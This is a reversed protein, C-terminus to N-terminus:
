LREAKSSVARGYRWAGRAFLAQLGVFVVLLLLSWKQGASEIGGNAVLVLALCALVASVLIGIGAVGCGLDGRGDLLSLLYALAFAALVPTRSLLAAVVVLAASGVAGIVFALPLKANMTSEHRQAGPVDSNGVGEWGQQAFCAMRLGPRDATM